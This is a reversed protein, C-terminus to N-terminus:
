PSIVLTVRDGERVYLSQSIAQQNSGLPDALFQLERATGVLRPPITMDTKRLGTATGLRLRQAGTVVYITMDTFGRNDVQLVTREAPAGGSRAGGCAALLAAALVAMVRWRM